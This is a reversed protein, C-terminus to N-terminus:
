AAPASKLGFGVRLNRLGPHCCHRLDFQGTRDDFEIAVLHGADHPAEDLVLQDLRMEFDVQFVVIEAPLAM